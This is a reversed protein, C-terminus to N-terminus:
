VPGAGRVRRESPVRQMEIMMAQLGPLPSSVEALSDAPVVEAAVLEAVLEAVEGVV